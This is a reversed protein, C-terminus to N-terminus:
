PTANRNKLQSQVPNAPTSDEPDPEAVKGTPSGHVPCTAPDKARCEGDASLPTPSPPAEGGPSRRPRLLAKAAYSDMAAALEEAQEDLPRTALAERLRRLCETSSRSTRVIEALPDTASPM